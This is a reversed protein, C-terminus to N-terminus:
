RTIEAKKVVELCERAEKDTEFYKRIPELIKALEKAAANKLDQPHVEGKGYAKELEEYSQFEV